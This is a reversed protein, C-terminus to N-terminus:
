PPWALRPAGFSLLRCVSCVVLICHAHVQPSLRSMNCWIVIVLHFSNLHLTRPPFGNLHSIAQRHAETVFILIEAPVGSLLYRDAGARKLTLFWSLQATSCQLNTWSCIESLVQIFMDYGNMDQKDMHRTHYFDRRRWMGLVKASGEPPRGINDQGTSLLTCVSFTKSVSSFCPELIDLINTWTKKTIGFRRM